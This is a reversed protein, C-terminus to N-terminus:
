EDDGSEDSEVDLSQESGDDWAFELSNRSVYADHCAGIFETFALYGKPRGSKPPASDVDFFFLASGDPEYLAIFLKEFRDVDDHPDSRGSYPRLHRVWSGFSSPNKNRADDCSDIPLFLVGVMVAYPQRKHYGSAEIRLEEENRKKNHTYRRSGTGERIHVSKLSIGLALGLEPSSFNVDLQKSGRVSRSRRQPSCETGPLYHALASAIEAGMADAFRIAYKNKEEKSSSSTPRPKAKTLVRQIVLAGHTPKKGTPSAM